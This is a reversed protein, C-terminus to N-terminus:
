EGPDLINVCVFFFIRDKELTVAKIVKGVRGSYVVPSAVM